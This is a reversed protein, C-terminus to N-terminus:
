HLGSAVHLGSISVGMQFSTMSKTHEGLKTGTLCGSTGAFCSLHKSSTPNSGVIAAYRVPRGTWNGYEMGTGSGFFTNSARYGCAM